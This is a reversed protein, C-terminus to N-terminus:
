LIDEHDTPYRSDPPRDTDDCSRIHSPTQRIDRDVLSTQVCRCDLYVHVFVATISTLFTVPKGNENGANPGSSNGTYLCDAWPHNLDDVRRYAATVKWRHVETSFETSFKVGSAKCMSSFDTVTCVFSSVTFSISV